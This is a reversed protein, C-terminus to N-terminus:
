EEIIFRLRYIKEGRYASHIIKINKLSNIPLTMRDIFDTKNLMELGTSNNESDVQFIVADEDIMQNLQTRRKEWGEFDANSFLHIMLAYDDKKLLIKESDAQNSVKREITDTQYYPARVAFTIFGNQQNLQLCGNPDLTKFISSEGEKFLEIEFDPSAIKEKTDADFFCFSYTKNNDKIIANKDKRNLIWLLCFAFLSLGFFKVVTTSFYTNQPTIPHDKKDNEEASKQHNNKFNEWDSYGLFQTLLDLMDVRPLKENKIPKLHTYFWKESIRSNVNEELLQQFNAIEKGRFNNIPRKWTPYFEQYKVM